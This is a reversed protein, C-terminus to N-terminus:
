NRKQWKKKNKNIKKWELYLEDRMGDRVEMWKDYEEKPEEANKIMESFKGKQDIRPTYRGSHKRVKKTAKRGRSRSYQGRNKSLESKEGLSIVLARLKKERRTIM